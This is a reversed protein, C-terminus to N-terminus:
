QTTSVCEAMDQALVNEMRVMGNAALLRDVELMLDNLFEESHARSIHRVLASAADLHSCRRSFRPPLRLRRAAVSLGQFACGSAGCIYQLARRNTEVVLDGARDVGACAMAAIAVPGVFLAGVPADTKALIAQALVAVSRFGFAGDGAARVVFLHPGLEVLKPFLQGSDSWVRSPSPCVRGVFAWPIPQTRDFTAWVLGSVRLIRCSSHGPSPRLQSPISWDYASISWANGSNPWITGGSAASRFLRILDPWGRDVKLRVRGLWCRTPWFLSM